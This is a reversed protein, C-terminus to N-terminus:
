PYKDELVRRQVAGMAAQEGPDEGRLLHVGELGLDPVETGLHEVGQHATVMEIENLIQPRDHRHSHNAHQEADGEVIQLRDKM